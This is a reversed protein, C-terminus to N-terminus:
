LKSTDETQGLLVKGIYEEMTPAVMAHATVTHADRFLRQLCNSAYIASGGGLRLMETTVDAAERSAHLAALRLHSKLSIELTDGRELVSELQDVCQRLWARSSGLRAACHAFTAQAVGKQAVTRRGGTPVKSVALEELADMAAQGIGLSVAAVQVALFAFVPTQYLSEDRRPTDLAIAFDDTVFANEVSFDHSGTGRLGSTDWTDHLTTQEERFTMLRVSPGSGPRESDKCLVGGLRWHSHHSGSGFPWRGQVRWGGPVKEARGRPAYVGCFRQEPQGFVTKAAGDPMYGALLGTTSAIMVCWAAAADGRALEEIIRLQLSLPLEHGDLQRPVSLRFMGADDLAQVAEDPLRREHEGRQSLVGLPERLSQARSLWVTDM